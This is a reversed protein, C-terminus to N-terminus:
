ARRRHPIPKSFEDGIRRGDTGDARGRCQDADPARGGNAPDGRNVVSVLTEFHAPRVAGCLIDTYGPVEIHVSNLLGHPYIEKPDPRYLLDCNVSKLLQEDREPTRPRHDFEENPGFQMPDDFASVVYHRTVKRALRGAVRWEKVKERVEAITTVVQM